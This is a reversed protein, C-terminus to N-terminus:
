LTRIRSLRFPVAAWDFAARTRFRGAYVYGAIDGDVEAVLYPYDKLTTSIRRTFEELSPVEYEFTIATHKVYWAYISLLSEADDTTATRITINM